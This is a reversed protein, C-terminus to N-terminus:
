KDKDEASGSSQSRAAHNPARPTPSSLFEWDASGDPLRGYSTDPSQHGFTLTDVVLSHEGSVEYLGLQEGLAAGLNFSAHLPGEGTENDAWILLFGGAPVSTDPFAWKTTKTLDDTLAMDGLPIAATDANYLEVWDDFDGAEDAVTTQNSAMFENIFLRGRHASTGSVNEAGPTPITLFRWGSGGDPIRGYSTDTRQQGFSFTDVYFVHDGDTAYLGLREGEAGLKFSAHLAGQRYGGDCWVVLYGHAPLVTDPFTWKMPRSLDDTLYMVRMNVDTGGANYLEVWDAFQGAEDAITKKNSAMFENISVTGALRSQTPTAPEASCGGVLLLVLSGALGFARKM